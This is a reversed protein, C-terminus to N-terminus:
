GHTLHVIYAKLKLSLIKLKSDNIKSDFEFLDVMDPGFIKKNAESKCKDTQRQQDLKITDERIVRQM